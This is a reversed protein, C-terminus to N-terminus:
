KAGGEGATRRPKLHKKHAKDQLVRLDRVSTEIDIAIQRDEAADIDGNELARTVDEIVRSADVAIRALDRMDIEEEGDRELAVLRYGVLQAMAALIVPSGAERDLEIAVDIPCHRDAHESSAYKSLDSESARTMHQVSAAGGALKAARRVAAKLALRDDPTSARMDEKAM